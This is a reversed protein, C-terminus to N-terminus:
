PSRRSFPQTLRDSLAALILGPSWNPGPLRSTISPSTPQLGACGLGLPDALTSDPRARYVRWFTEVTLDEAASRDPVIRLVWVYVTTQFQRFLTEFAELEGRSFREPLEM